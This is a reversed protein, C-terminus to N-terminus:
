YVICGFWVCWLDGILCLLGLLGVMWGFLCGCSVVLLVACAILDFLKFWSRLM